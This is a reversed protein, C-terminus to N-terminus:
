LISCVVMLCVLPNEISGGYSCNGVWIWVWVLGTHSLGRTHSAMSMWFHTCECCLHSLTRCATREWQCSTWCSSQNTVRWDRPPKNKPQVRSSKIETWQVLYCDMVWRPSSVSQKVWDWSILTWYIKVKLGHTTEEGEYSWNADCREILNLLRCSWLMSDLITNIQWILKFFQVKLWLIGVFFKRKPCEALDASFRCIAAWVCAGGM